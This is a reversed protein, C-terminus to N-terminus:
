LVPYSDDTAETNTEQEPFEEKEAEHEDDSEPTKIELDTLHQSTIQEKEAGLSNKNFVVDRSYFVRRKDPDYLRYGKTAAGYGLFVYKKAKTNLKKREDKPIHSRAQSYRGLRAFILLRTIPKTDKKLKLLFNIM